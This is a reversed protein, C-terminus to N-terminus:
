GLHAKNQCKGQSRQFTLIPLRRDIRAVGLREIVQHLNQLYQNQERETANWKFHAYIEIPRGGDNQDVASIGTLSAGFLCLRPVHVSHLYRSFIAQLKKQGDIRIDRDNIVGSQVSEFFYAAQDTILDGVANITHQQQIGSAKREEQKAKKIKALIRDVVWPFSLLKIGSRADATQHDRQLTATPGSGQDNGGDYTAMYWASAKMLVEDSFSGNDEFAEMVAEEGGFEDYFDERTKARLTALSAQIMQAVEFKEDTKASLRTNVRFLCGTIVEGENKLGHLSM